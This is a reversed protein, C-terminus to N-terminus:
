SGVATSAFRNARESNDAPGASRPALGAMPGGVLDKDISLTIGGVTASVNGAYQKSRAALPWALTGDSLSSVGDWLAIWIADPPTFGPTKGAVAAQMDVIGSNQSSYVASVYGAATVQLDWAGLFAIVANKCSSDGKYGEMDYYIPSGVALGLTQADSLADLGAAKGQAAAKAPDVLAGTGGWCPAQPGVYIPLVGWGSSSVSRIWGASLNGSACASNAGGIYAGVAGYDSHWASMTALSPATCTDFGAVPPAATPTPTPPPTPTPTP